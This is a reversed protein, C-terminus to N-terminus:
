NFTEGNQNKPNIESFHHIEESIQFNQFQDTIKRFTKSKKETRGM